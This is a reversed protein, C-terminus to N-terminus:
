REGEDRWINVRVAVTDGPWRRRTVLKRLLVSGRFMEDVLVLCRGLNHEAFKNPIVTPTREVDHVRAVALEKVKAPRDEVVHLYTPWAPELPSSDHQRGGAGAGCVSRFYM